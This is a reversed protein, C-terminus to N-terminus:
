RRQQERAVHRRRAEVRGATRARAETLFSAFPLTDITVRWRDSIREIRVDRGLVTFTTPASSV